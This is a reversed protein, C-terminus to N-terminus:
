RSVIYHCDDRREHKHANIPIQLKFDQASVGLRTILAQIAQDREKFVSDPNDEKLYFDVADVLETRSNDEFVALRARVMLLNRKKWAKVKGSLKDCFDRNISKVGATYKKMKVRLAEPAEPIM